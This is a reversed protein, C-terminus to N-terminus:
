ALLFFLIAYQTKSVQCLISRIYKGCAVFGTYDFYDMIQYFRESIENDKELTCCGFKAYEKCFILPEPPQFPPKYDLCQPHADGSRSSLLATLVILLLGNEPM